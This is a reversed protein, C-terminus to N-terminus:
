EGPFPVLAGDKEDLRGQKHKQEQHGTHGAGQDADLTAPAPM